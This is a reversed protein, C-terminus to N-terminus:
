GPSDGTAAGKKLKELLTERLESQLQQYREFQETSLVQKMRELKEAKQERLARGKALLGSSGKIVPDAKKAFELDIAAVQKEQEPSLDLHTKAFETQVAARQQPTTHQLEHVAAIEGEQAAAAGALM